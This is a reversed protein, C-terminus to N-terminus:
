FSLDNKQENFILFAVKKFKEHTKEVEEKLILRMWAFFEYKEKEPVEEELAEREIYPGDIIAIFMKM